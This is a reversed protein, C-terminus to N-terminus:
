RTGSSAEGQTQTQRSRTVACGVYRSPYPHTSVAYYHLELHLFDYSLSCENRNKRSDGLCSQTLLVM